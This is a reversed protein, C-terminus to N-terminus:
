IVNGNLIGQLLAEVERAGVDTDILDIPRVGDLAPAPTNLWQYIASDDTFLSRALNRIRAIRMLKESAEASLLGRQKQQRNITRQALGLKLALTNKSIGFTVAVQSFTRAPLGARIRRVVVSTPQSALQFLETSSM